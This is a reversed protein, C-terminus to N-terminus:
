DMRSLWITVSDRGVFTNWQMHKGDYHRISVVVSDAGDQKIALRWRANDLTGM